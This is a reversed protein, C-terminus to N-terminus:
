PGHRTALFACLAAIVCATVLLVIAAPRRRFPEGRRPRRSAVSVAVVLVALVAMFIMSQARTM